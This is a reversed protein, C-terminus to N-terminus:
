QQNGQLASQLKSSLSSIASAPLYLAYLNVNTSVPCNHALSGACRSLDSTDSPVDRVLVGFIAIDTHKSSLFRKTASKFMNQWSTHTAHHGLYRIIGKKTPYADRLKKLQNELGGQGHMVNPPHNKDSSTKVEGFAFRFPNVKDNTEQFGALDAGAPNAKPNKLDRSAPWPFFCNDNDSVYAEALAEGVLWSKPKLEVQLLQSIQKQDFETSALGSLMDELESTGAKDLLLDKVPGNIAEDLQEETYKVGRVIVPARDVNYILVPESM